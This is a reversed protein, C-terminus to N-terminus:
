TIKYVVTAPGRKNRKNEIIIEGTEALRSIIQELDRQKISKLRQLLERRCKGEDGGERVLNLVKNIEAEVENDAVHQAVERMMTNAAWLAIERGWAFAEPGIRPAHFNQAIAYTLALKAANEAVRAYVSRSAGDIMHDTMDDDLQEWADYVADDMVVIQAPRDVQSGGAGALNGGAPNYAVLSKIEDVLSRPIPGMDPRQRQPRHLGSSAVILRSLTGDVGQGSNLASYFTSHTSTAYICANPNIIDIRPKDKQDAYEAGRYVSGAASYMVMLTTIIDRKHPDARKGTMAQLMLGFEDLVFLKSPHKNLATVVGSGSPLREGGVYDGTDTALTLRNLTKRAAEKGAGSEALGVIYLNTRLGTENQYKRGALTAIFSTAAMIALLPQPRVSQRNILEAIEAILGGPPMLEPAQSETRPKRKNQYDAALEAALRRQHSQLLIASVEAGHEIQPDSWGHSEAIRRISCLTIPNAVNHGRRSFNAWERRIAAADYKAPCTSSWWDWVDMGEVPDAHHLAMGVDRWTEYDDAPVSKLMEGINEPLEGDPNWDPKEALAHVPEDRIHALFWEPADALTTSDPESSAEWEYRKGSAHLSPPAVIYGGDARSDLGETFRVRTRYRKGDGPYRFLLHRGGSGTIAEVTDTLEQLSNEGYEDVDLVLLGSEQGTAIGVNADPWIGWWKNILDPDTTAGNRGNSTRPHKGPRNCGAQRCSCGSETPTHVPFVPWGRAAYDLAAKHTPTM